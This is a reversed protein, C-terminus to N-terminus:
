NWPFPAGWVGEPFEGPGAVVTGVVDFCPATRSSIFPMLDLPRRSSTRLSELALWAGIVRDGAPGGPMYNMMRVDWPSQTCLIAEDLRAAISQSARVWPPRPADDVHGKTETGKARMAEM